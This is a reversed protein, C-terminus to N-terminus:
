SGGLQEQRRWVEFHEISTERVYRERVYSSFDGFEEFYQRSTKPMLNTADEDVIVVYKPKQMTLDELFERRYREHFSTGSSAVLAYNYGFRTPAARGCLYNVLPEIGWVLVYDGADTRAGLYDALQKDALFSFDGSGYSGFRAYFSERSSKNFLYTSWAARHMPPRVPIMILIIMALIWSRSLGPSMATQVRQTTLIRELETIGMATFIALPVYVPTWHYGYYKDQLVVVGVAVLFFVSLSMAFPRLTRWVSVIGFSFFPLQVLIHPRFIFENVIRFLHELLSRGHALRYVTANFQLQIELFDKLAGHLALWILSLSLVFMCAAVLVVVRGAAVRLSPHPEGLAYTAVPVIFALYTFKYLTALGVLLGAAIWRFNRAQGPVFVLYLALILIMTAWGDAQATSWYGQRIYLFIFLLTGIRAALGSGFHRLLRWLAVSSIMLFVLDFARIGWLTRGFVWQALAYTYHIAPGKVEWADRFPLGGRLIVDGVWAFTGQDRGMPWWISGAATFGAYGFLCTFLIRRAWMLIHSGEVLGAM